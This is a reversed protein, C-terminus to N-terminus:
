KVVVKAKMAPHPVCHYAFTGPASFTYSFENGQTLIGSDFTKDDATATHPVKDKNVWTVKTGAAM